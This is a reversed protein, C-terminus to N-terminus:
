NSLFDSLFLASLYKLTYKNINSPLNNSLYQDRSIWIFDSHQSDANIQLPPFDPILRAEVIYHTSIAIPISISM